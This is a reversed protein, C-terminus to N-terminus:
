VQFNIGLNTNNHINLRHNIQFGIQYEGTVDDRIAESESSHHSISSIRVQPPFGM